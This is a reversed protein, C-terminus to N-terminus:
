LWMLKFLSADADDRITVTWMPDGSNFRHTMDVDGSLNKEIWEEFLVDDNPYAWCHWGVLEERFEIQADTGTKDRLIEPINHWGNDYKWHHVSVALPVENRQM